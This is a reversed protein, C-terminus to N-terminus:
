SIKQQEHERELLKELQAVRKELDQTETGKNALELITRAASVRSAATATQDRIIERLCAVAEGATSQLLGIARDMVQRRAQAYMEAVDPQKLWNYCTAVSVGVSKAAEEISPSLLLHTIFKEILRGKRSGHGAVM